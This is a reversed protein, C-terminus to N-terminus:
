NVHAMETIRVAVKNCLYYLEWKLDIFISVRARSSKWGFYGLWHLRLYEATYFGIGKGTWVSGKKILSAFQLKSSTLLLQSTM